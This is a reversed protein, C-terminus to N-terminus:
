AEDGVVAERDQVDGAEVQGVGFLDLGLQLRDGADDLAPDERAPAGVDEEGASVVDHAGDCAASRLGPGRGRGAICM